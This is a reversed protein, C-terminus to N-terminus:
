FSISVSVGNGAFKFDPIKGGTKKFFDVDLETMRYSCYIWSVAFMWVSLCVSMCAAIVAPIGDLCFPAPISLGLLLATVSCTREFLSDSDKLYRRLKMYRWFRDTFSYWKACGEVATRIDYEDATECEAAIRLRSKEKETM